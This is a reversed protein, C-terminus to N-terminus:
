PKDNNLPVELSNPMPQKIELDKLIPIPNSIETGLVDTDKRDGKVRPNPDEQQELHELDSLQLEAM